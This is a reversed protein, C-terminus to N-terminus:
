PNVGGVLTVVTIIAIIFMGIAILAGVVKYVTPWTVMHKMSKDQERNKTFLLNHEKKGQEMYDFMKQEFKANKIDRVNQAKDEKEQRKVRAIAEQSQTNKIAAIDDVLMCEGAEPNCKTQM